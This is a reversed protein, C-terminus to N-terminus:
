KDPRALVQQILEHAKGPNFSHGAVKGDPGIVIWCPIARIGYWSSIWGPSEGSQTAADVCVAGDAKYKALEERVAGLDERPMHVGIWVVDRSIGTKMLHMYNHCSGCGIDWFQLVVAKGRLQEMRLPETNLWACKAPFEPASRGIRADLQRQMSLDEDQLRRARKRIKEWMQETMDKKYPYTVIAGFRGDDVPTGEQIDIRFLDESLPSNVQIDEIEIDRTGATAQPLPDEVSSLPLAYGQKMPFWRGPSVQTYHNAWFDRCLIGAQFIQMGYMLGDKTGIFWRDRGESCELVYCATGRYSQSGTLIFAEAPVNRRINEKVSNSHNWWFRHHQARPWTLDAMLIMGHIGIEPLISCRKHSQVFDYRYSTLEKGNWILLEESIGETYQRRCFRKGDFAIEIRGELRAALHPFKEVTLEADPFQECLNKKQQEIGEPTQIWKDKAKIYFSAVHDIWEESQRVRNVLDMAKIGFEEEYAKHSAPIMKVLTLTVPEFGQPGQATGTLHYLNGAPDPEFRVEQGQNDKGILRGQEPTLTFPEEKGGPKCIFGDGDPIMELAPWNPTGQFAYSGAFHTLLSNGSSNKRAEPM